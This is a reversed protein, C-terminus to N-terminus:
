AVPSLSRNQFLYVNSPLYGNFVTPWHPKFKVLLIIFSAFVALVKGCLMSTLLELAFLLLRFLINRSTHHYGLYTTYHIMVLVRTLNSNDAGRIITCTERRKFWRKCPCTRRPRRVINDFCGCIAPSIPIDLM